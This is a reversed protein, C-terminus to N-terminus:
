GRKLRTKVGHKDLLLSSLYCGISVGQYDTFSQPVVKRERFIMELETGTVEDLHSIKKKKQAINHSRTKIEIV